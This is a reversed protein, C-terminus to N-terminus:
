ASTDRLPNWFLTVLAAPLLLHILGGASIGGIIALFWVLVMLVPVAGWALEEWTM